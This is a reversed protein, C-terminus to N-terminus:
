ERTLEWACGDECIGSVGDGDVTGTCGEFGEGSLSVQDGDVTGGDPQEGHDMSWDDLVFTCAPDDMDVSVTMTMGFCSGRVEYSGDALTECSGAEGSDATSGDCASGALLLPLLSLPLSRLLCVSRPCM